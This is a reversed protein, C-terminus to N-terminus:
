LDTKLDWFSRETVALTSFDCVGIPAHWLRHFHALSSPVTDLTASNHLDIAPVAGRTASSNLESQVRLRVGPFTPSGRRDKIM